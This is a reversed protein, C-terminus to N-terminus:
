SGRDRADSRGSGAAPCRAVFEAVVDVLQDAIQPRADRSRELAVLVRLAAVLDAALHCRLAFLDERRQSRSAFARPSDTLTVGIPMLSRARQDVALRDRALLELQEVSSRLSSILLLMLLLQLGIM